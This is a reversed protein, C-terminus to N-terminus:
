KREKIEKIKEKVDRYDKNWKRIEKYIDLAKKFEELSEYVLAMDYKISFSLATGEKTLNLAEKLWKLSEKFDKKKRYCSIIVHCSDVAIQPDKLAMKAEEIAEDYLEQEMFAIALNYHSEYDEKGVKEDLAKRFDSVIDSLAKEVITTDGRLQYNYIDKIAEIEENPRNSLDYYQKDGDQKTIMPIIDTEAFIDASTLKEEFEPESLSPVSPRPPQKIEGFLETEKERVKVLRSTIDKVQVKTALEELEKIKKEIKKHDPYKLDLNQLIRRSNKILGQEM